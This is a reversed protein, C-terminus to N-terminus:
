NTCIIGYTSVITATPPNTAREVGGAASPFTSSPHVPQPEPLFLNDLAGLASLASMFGRAGVIPQDNSVRLARAGRAGRAGKLIGAAM